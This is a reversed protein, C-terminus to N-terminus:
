ARAKRPMKKPHMGPQSHVAVVTLVL